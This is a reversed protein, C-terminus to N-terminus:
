KSNRRALDKGLVLLGHLLNGIIMIGRDVVAAAVLIEMYGIAIGGTGIILERLGVGGPTVPAMSALDATFVIASLEIVNVDTSALLTIFLLRALRLWAFSLQYGAVLLISRPRATNLHQHLDNLADNLHPGAAAIQPRNRRLWVVTALSALSVILGFILVLENSNAREPLAFSLAAVSAGISCALLLSQLLTSAVFSRMRFLNKSKGSAAQALIGAGHFTLNYFGKIGTLDLATHFPLKENFILLTQRLCLAQVFRAATFLGFAGVLTSLSTDQLARWINGFAEQEFALFTLALIFALAGVGKLLLKRNRWKM